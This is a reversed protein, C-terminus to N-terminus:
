PLIGLIERDRNRPKSIWRLLTISEGPSLKVPSKTFVPENEGIRNVFGFKTLFQLGEAVTSRSQRTLNALDSVTYYKSQTM